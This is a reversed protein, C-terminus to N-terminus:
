EKGVNDDYTGDDFDEVIYELEQWDYESVLGLSQWSKSTKIAQWLPEPCPTEDLTKWDMLEDDWEAERTNQWATDVNKRTIVRIAWGFKAEIRAMLYFVDDDSELSDVLQESMRAVDPNYDPGLISEYLNM